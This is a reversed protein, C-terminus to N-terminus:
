ISTFYLDAEAKRRKVLGPLVTLKGGIRGKTWKMFEDRITPDNPNILAKKYLTSGKFAGMGLNYCFSLCSDLQNQNLSLKPFAHYKNKLEWMLLKEAGDLTIKQGKQVKAGDPYMISGYGITWIGVPDLYSDSYFGEFKKILNVCNTSPGM